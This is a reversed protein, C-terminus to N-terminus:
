QPREEPPRHAHMEKEINDYLARFVARDAAPLSALAAAIVALMQDHGLCKTRKFVDFVLLLSPAISSIQARDIEPISM